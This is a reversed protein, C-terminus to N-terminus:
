PFSKNTNTYSFFEILGSPAGSESEGHFVWQVKFDVPHPHAYKNNCFWFM